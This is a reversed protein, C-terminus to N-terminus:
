TLYNLEVSSGSKFDKVIVILKKSNREMNMIYRWNTTDPSKDPSTFPMCSTCTWGDNELSKKIYEASIDWKEKYDVVLYSKDGDLRSAPAFIEGSGLDLSKPLSGSPQNNKQEPNEDLKQSPKDSKKSSSKISPQNEDPNINTITKTPQPTPNETNNITGTPQTPQPTNSTVPKLPTNETNNSSCSTILIAPITAVTAIKIGLKYKM